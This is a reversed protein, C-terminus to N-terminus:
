AFADEIAELYLSIVLREDFEREVKERGARGWETRREPAAGIMEAM